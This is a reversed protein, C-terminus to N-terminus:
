RSVREGDVHYSYTLGQLLLKDGAVRSKLYAQIFSSRQGLKPV